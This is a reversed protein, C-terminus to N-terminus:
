RSAQALEELAVLPHESLSVYSGSAYANAGADSILRVTSITAGGDVQIFLRKHDKRLRAVRDVTHYIFPSKNKGPVVGMLMVGRLHKKLRDVRATHTTSKFALMLQTKRRKCYASLGALETDNVTEAHVIVRHIGKDILKPVYKMPDVVMLHAEFQHQPYSKLDPWDKIAVSKSSVFVGDMVDIHIEKSVAVVQLFIKQFTAPTSALVTPIIKM